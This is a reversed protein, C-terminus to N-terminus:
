QYRPLLRVDVAGLRPFTSPTTHVCTWKDDQLLSSVFGTRKHYTSLYLHEELAGLFRLKELNTKLTDIHDCVAKWSANELSTYCLTLVVDEEVGMIIGVNELVAPGQYYPDSDAGHVLESAYKPTAKNFARKSM